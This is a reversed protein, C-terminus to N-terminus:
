NQFLYASWNVCDNVLDAATHVQFTIHGIDDYLKTTVNRVNNLFSSTHPIILHDLSSAYCVYHTHMDYDASAVQAMLTRAFSGNYALEDM